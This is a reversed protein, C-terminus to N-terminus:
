AISGTVAHQIRAFSGIKIYQKEKIVAHFRFGTNPDRHNNTLGFVSQGAENRHLALLRLNSLFSLRLITTRVGVYLCLYVYQCAV